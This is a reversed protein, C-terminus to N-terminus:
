IMKFHRLANMIAEEKDKTCQPQKVNESKPKNYNEREIIGCKTKVQAINLSSVKLGFGEFVYDKIEDYTAKAESSTLDLEDMDVTIDIYTDPKKRVLQVVTEVHTTRPFLDVARLKEVTYGNNSLYSCDRAATAPNCSIMVIKKPSMKIIADLTQNDCGKRPPDVIIVDPKIGKQAFDTAIQSADGCYFEANEINNIKANKKANEIAQPIIEVGIIKKAKDAFSLGITGAGCYLDLVEEDGKLEAYEKGIAYLKEAQETNVQYFSLPSLEIKNGCMIDTITESGALIRCEEGMIVNTKKSNKNIVVSKIDPFNRMLEEAIQNFCDNWQTVVFCVMIEKTHFAQRIYIHRLLGTHKDEGYAKIDSTNVRDIIFNVIDEFVMPHLKCSTFPVVRHSRKSYFGCVVKGDIEAVPYQAKNRYYNVNDCGLIEETEVDLKGIRKFADKVFNNKIELEADYSIHRFSCGGCKKFIECDNECRTHSPTLIEEVIGYGFTKQLKVIKVNVVDGIATMPVFIAFDNYKGVGNGETTMGTITLEVIDNKKM